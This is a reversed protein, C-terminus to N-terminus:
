RRRVPQQGRAGIPQASKLSFILHGLPPTELKLGSTSTAKLEGTTAFEAFIAVDDFAFKGDKNFDVTAINDTVYKHFQEIKKRQSREHLALMPAILATVTVFLIATTAAPNRQCWRLARLIQSIPKARIPEGNLFRNLDEILVRATEYRKDPNKEICKLCITELDKPILSNLERPSRADTNLVQHILMRTNGRFPMGGSLLEYLVVGLSYIDSRRDSTHAEGRAQEPSMYAPTGLIQGEATMTIEGADRKALGFDMIHPQGAEDVIVNSPKLDRHIVGADHAHSLAEAIDRCLEAAERVTPRQGTLYDALSVGRVLDSVIYITEGDRGVEHVGV